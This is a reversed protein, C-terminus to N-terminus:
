LSQWFLGFRWRHVTVGSESCGDGGRSCWGHEQGHWTGGGPTAVVITADSGMALVVLGDHISADNIAVCDGSVVLAQSSIRTSSVLVRVDPLFAGSTKGDVTHSVAFGIIVNKGTLSRCDPVAARVEVVENTPFEGPPILITIKTGGDWGTVTAGHPGVTQAVIVDGLTGVGGGGWGGSPGYGGDVAEATTPFACAGAIVLGLIAVVLGLVRHGSSRWRQHSRRV